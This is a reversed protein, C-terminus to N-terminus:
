AQGYTLHELLGEVSVAQVGPDLNGLPEARPVAASARILREVDYGDIAKDLRLLPRATGPAATQGAKAEALLLRSPGAPVLFDVELGQQDRFYYLERRRGTM